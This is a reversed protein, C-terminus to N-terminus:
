AILNVGWVGIMRLFIELNVGLAVLGWDRDGIGNRICIRLSRHILSIEIWGTSSSYIQDFLLIYSRPLSIYLAALKGEDVYAYSALRRIEAHNAGIWAHRDLKAAHDQDAVM